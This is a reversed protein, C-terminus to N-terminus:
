PLLNNNILHKATLNKYFPRCDNNHIPIILDTNLDPHKFKVHSGKAPIKIHNTQILIKEIQSYRLSSPNELFKKIINDFRTM